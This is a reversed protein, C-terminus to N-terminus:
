WSWAWGNGAPRGFAMPQDDGVDLAFLLASTAVLAAGIGLTAYYGIGDRDFREIAADYEADSGANRAADAADAGDVRFWVTAGLSALGVGGAVWPWPGFGSESDAAVAAALRVRGGEGPRVDVEFPRARGDAARHEGTYRGVSIAAWKAPCPRADPLGAVHVIGGDCDVELDGRLLDIRAEAGAAVAVRFRSASGHASSLTGEYRGPRVLEWRAPCPLDGPLGQMRVRGGVACAVDVAGFHARRLAEGRATARARFAEGEALRAALDFAAIARAPDGLEEHCRGINWHLRADGAALKGGDLAADFAALAERHRGAKFHRQGEAVQAQLRARAAADEAALARPPALAFLGVLLAPWLRSPRPLM